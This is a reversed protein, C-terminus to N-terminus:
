SVILLFRIRRFFVVLPSAAMQRATVQAMTAPGAGAPACSCGVNAFSTAGIMWCFQWIQWWGADIAGIDSM